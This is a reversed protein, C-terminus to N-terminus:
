AFSGGKWNRCSYYQEDDSLHVSSQRDGIRYGARHIIPVTDPTLFMTRFVMNCIASITIAQQFHDMKVLKLYLKMFASCAESLVNVDDM